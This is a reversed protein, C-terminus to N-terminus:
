RAGRMGALAGAIAPGALAAFGAATAAVGVIWPITGVPSGAVKVWMSGDCSGEAADIGGSVKFLGVADFPLYDAVEVVGDSAQQDDNNESGGDKVTIGMVDVHWSHDHFAVPTSGEYEVTGDPDVDFPRKSTGGDGPAVVEDLEVGDSDFSVASGACGGTLQAADAPAALLVVAFAAGVGVPVLRM